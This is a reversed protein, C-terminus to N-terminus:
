WRTKFEAALRKLNEALQAQQQTVEDIELASEYTQVADSQIADLSRAVEKSVAVQEESATAIESSMDSIRKVDQLINDFIEELEDSLELTQESVQHSERISHAANESLETFSHIIEQIQQTSDHTQSALTRVEDAVVAFGRGHEGARAAEIAANLALLNTQEALNRIVDIVQIMSSSREQLDNMVSDVSRVSAALERVQAVSSRVHQEGSESKDRVSFAADAVEAVNQSIQASTASMEESATAVQQVQQQQQDIHQTNRRVINSSREMAVSMQESAQDIEKLSASFVSYLQDVSDSLAGIEDTSHTKVNVTLDKNFMAAQLAKAFTRMQQNLQKIITFALFVGLIVIALMLAISIWLQTNAYGLSQQANDVIEDLVLAKTTNLKDLRATALNFWHVAQVQQVTDQNIAQQRLALFNQNDASKLFDQWVAQEEPNIFSEAVRAWSAQQGQLLVVPLLNETTYNQARIYAAGVAREQGALEALNALAAYVAIPRMITSSSAEKLVRDTELMLVAINETYTAIVAAASLNSNQMQQRVNLIKQIANQINGSAAFKSGKFDAIRRDSNQQQRQLETQGNTDERNSLAIAVRGRERQLESILPNLLHLLETEQLLTQMSHQQQQNTYIRDTFLFLLALM